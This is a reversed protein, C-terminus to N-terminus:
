SATSPTTAPPSDPSVCPRSGSPDEVDSPQRGHDTRGIQPTVRRRAPRPSTAPGPPRARPGPRRTRPAAGPGGTRAAHLVRHVVEQEGVVGLARAPQPAPVRPEAHPELATRLVGPQLPVRPRSLSSACRRRWTVLPRRRHSLCCRPRSGGVPRATEALVDRGLPRHDLRQLPQEGGGRVAAALKPQKPSCSHAITWRIALVLGPVGVPRQPEAALAGVRDDLRVPDRARM